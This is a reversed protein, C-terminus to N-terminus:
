PLYWLLLDSTVPPFLAEMLEAHPGPYCDSHRQRLGAMGHPGFLLPALLDPAVGAGGQSYPGQLTGGPRVPGVEGDQWAFRVHSRFFSVLVDTDDFGALRRALLPRLHELLAAASPIRFYFEQLQGSPPGLFADLALGPRADVTAPALSLLSMAADSDLAVFEHMTDEAMRACGVVQDARTAVHLSSGPQAIVWRWCAASRPVRLEVGSQAIDQLRVLDPIDSLRAERVLDEGTPVSQVPRPLPMPTSYSYGFQRYFYPIGIMVQLLHGRDASRQHAWDMLARVLGRGEYEVDTAVLEVQGTPIEVGGLVVTEDLLTATSVVRDGDVAVACAEWGADPDEVVLRHDAADEPEGRATLLAAIQDLDSPRATRIEVM